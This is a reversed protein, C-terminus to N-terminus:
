RAIVTNDAPGTAAIPVSITAGAFINFTNNSGSVTVIEGNLSIITGAPVRVSQGSVLTITQGPTVVIPTVAAFIQITFDRTATTAPNSGDTVQITFNSTGATTPTGSIVGAVTLSLGAPLTGSTISWLYPAKGGFPTLVQSYATNVTGNPLASTSITVNEPPPPFWEFENIGCGALGLLLLLSFFLHKVISHRTGTM